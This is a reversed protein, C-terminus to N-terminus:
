PEPASRLVQELAEVTEADPVFGELPPLDGLTDLGLQELFLATTGFLVAQGPGDDRGVPEVYGSQVLVRVVRDVNVGRIAAIQARTIPQKYAVIALTEFAAPSLRQPADAVVFREVYAHYAPHSQLRYGGAVRALEFGRQEENYSARLTECLREVQEPAIELLEALLGAPVPDTAAVLVAEIAAAEAGPSGCGHDTAGEIPPDAPPSM